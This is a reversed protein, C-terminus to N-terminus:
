GTEGPDVPASDPQSSLLLEVAADLQGASGSVVRRWESVWQRHNKWSGCAQGFPRDFDGPGGGYRQDEVLSALDLETLGIADLWGPPGFEALKTSGAEIARRVADGVLHHATRFPM